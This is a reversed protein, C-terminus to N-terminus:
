AGQGSGGVAGAQDRYDILKEALTGLDDDWEYANESLYLSGDVLRGYGVPEGDILLEGLDGAADPLPRVAEGRPRLEIVHDRYRRVGQDM